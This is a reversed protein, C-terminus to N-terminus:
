KFVQGYDYVPLEHFRLNSKLAFGDLLFRKSDPFGTLRENLQKIEKEVEDLRKKAEREDTRTQQLQQPNGRNRRGRRDAARPQELKQERQNDDKIERNLQSQEAELQKLRSALQDQEVMEQVPPTKLVFRGRVTGARNGEAPQRSPDDVSGEITWGLSNTEVVRGQVHVWLNLPRDGKQHKWWDFLPTLDVAQGNVVRKPDHAPSANAAAASAMVALLLFVTRM